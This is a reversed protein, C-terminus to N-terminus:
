SESSSRATSQCFVLKNNNCYDKVKARFNATSDPSCYVGEVFSDIPIDVPVEIGNLQGKNSELTYVRYENEVSFNSHKYQLIAPFVFMSGSKKVSKKLVELASLETKYIVDFGEVASNNHCLSCLKNTDTIYCIDCGKKSYLTWMNLDDISKCWSQCRMGFWDLETGAEDAINGRIIQNIINKEKGAVLNLQKVLCELEDQNQIDKAFRFLFGEKQDEWHKFPNVFYLANKEVVDTFREFPVYRCVKM